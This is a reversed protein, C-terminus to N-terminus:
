PRSPRDSFSLPGHIWGRELVVSRGADRISELQEALEVVGLDEGATVAQNRHHLEAQGLGLVEDVQALHGAQRSDFFVLAHDGDARYRRVPFDFRRLHELRLAGDHGLRRRHDAIGGHAVLARDATRAFPTSAASVPLFSSAAAISAAAAFAASPTSTCASRCPESSYLACRQRTNALRAISAATLRACAYTMSPPRPGPGAGASVTIAAITRAAPSARRMPRWFSRRSRLPLGTMRQLMSPTRGCTSSQMTTVPRSSAGNRVASRSRLTRKATLGRGCSPCPEEMATPAAASSGDVAAASTTSPSWGSVGGLTIGASSAACCALPFAMAAGDYRPVRPVGTSKAAETNASSRASAPSEPARATT